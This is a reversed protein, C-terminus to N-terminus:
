ARMTTSARVVLGPKLILQRHAFGPGASAEELLLGMAANGLETAHQQISTLPVAASAAFDIDDYGVVAVDDPVRIGGAATMGQIIGLALLDNAAFVGDPRDEPPLQAFSQGMERGALLTMATVQHVVPEPLGASRAANRAGELRDRVQPLGAPGGVFALRRRGTAALHEVALRGGEVDDVAVSSFSSHHTQRDVLVTPIGHQRLQELRQSVNGVPTILVGRVRQEEFLGLYRAERQADEGSNGVLVSVGEQAAHDEAGRAMDSFFPNAANLVVLGVSRSLGARLQSAAGNRVFGLKAISENVRELTAPSVRDPRNLVNSVTGVSVGALAAVDKVSITAM